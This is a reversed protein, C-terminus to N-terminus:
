TTAVEAMDEAIDETILEAMWATAHGDLRFREDITVGPAWAIREGVCLLPLRERVQRPVRRDILVEKLRRSGRAGLPHIRDGPRRNRITVRDGEVLPLALGARHPSGEFMWPEVARRDVRVKMSIEPIHLEGPIELTYTFDPVQEGAEAVRRLRLLEGSAEWRWGGGCDCAARATRPHRGLQRLLEARAAGAAPYPAGAQRHLWAFAFPLIERPLRALAAREVAVGSELWQLPLERALRRDLVAVAARAKGALRALSTALSTSSEPELSPLLRHRVLNRPVDLDGNTPDDVPKLGAAAVAAVLESRPVGLLPRVVAGHVPRIGALGELGSGFLLRLLVTEAQDDRHHATAIWRAGLDRRVRELFEYRARRGAAEPSEAPGDTREERRETLFPVGLRAAVRAAERARGASGPDMAHDLHAAALRPCRLGTREALRSMGWLLATSDPGGSFAVVVADGPDLPAQRQFFADIEGLLDM